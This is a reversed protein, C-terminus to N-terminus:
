KKQCVQAPEYWQGMGSQLKAAAEAPSIESDLIDIINQQVITNGDPLGEPLDWRIDNDFAQGLIYFVQAHSNEPLPADHHIAFFGPLQDVFLELAETSMLWELFVRAEEPHETASNIAVGFDPNVVMVQSKNEAAPMAFMSWNFDPQAAETAAISWSGDIFMAAQGSLFAQQADYYSISEHNPRIYPSIQDVAEFAAVMHKDDFCRDGVLYAERGAQGGIASPLLTGKFLINEIDWSDKSGNAIPIYGAQSIMEAALLFNEWTAPVEIGLQDFIDTNYYVAYSVAMVPVAFPEGEEDSWAALIEAEFNEQLNPLDGLPTVQGTNILPDMFTFPYVYFLDPANGNDLSTHLVDEYVLGVIPDFQVTIGSHTEHFASLIVDMQEQDDTRWSGLRLIVEENEPTGLLATETVEQVTTDDTRFTSLNPLSLLDYQWVFLLILGVIIIPYVIKGILTLTKVQIYKEKQNRDRIIASVDLNGVILAYMAYFVWDLAVTYGIGPLDNSLKIHFFAVTLLAGRDIANKIAYQDPPLFISLYALIAVAFLPLMNKVVFSSIERQIEIESNFTSYEINTETRYFNPNGLTSESELIDSYINVGRLKWSGEESFAQSNKLKLLQDEVTTWDMGLDDRVFILDNRTSTSHRFKVTLKQHDFPYDKYYFDGAFDGKVRYAQYHV